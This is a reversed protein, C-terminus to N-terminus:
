ASSSARLPIYHQRTFLWPTKQPRHTASRTSLFWKYLLYQKGVFNLLVQRDNTHHWVDAKAAAYSYGYMEAIWPKDGPKKTFADGSLTWAEPDARVDETITVWDSAMRRLDAKSM